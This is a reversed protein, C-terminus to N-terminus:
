SISLVEPVNSSGPIGHQKFWSWYKFAPILFRHFFRLSLTLLRCRLGASTRYLGSAQPGIVARSWVRDLWLWPLELHLWEGVKCWVDYPMKLIVRLPDESRWWMWIQTGNVPDSLISISPAFFAKFFHSFFLMASIWKQLYTCPLYIERLVEM